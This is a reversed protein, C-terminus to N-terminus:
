HNRRKSKNQIVYNSIAKAAGWLNGATILNANNEFKEDLEFATTSRIICSCADKEIIKFIVDFVRFGMDLFGGEIQRVVKERHQHDIKIFKEKWTRPEPIGDALEIHLVTGVTGDGQLIDIKKYVNPMLQVFLRPLEPSSYVAWIDDAPVGVEMENVVRGIMM